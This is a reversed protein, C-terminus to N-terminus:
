WTAVMSRPPPTPASPPAPSSTSTGYRRSSTRFTPPMRRCPSKLGGSVLQWIMAANGALAPAVVSSILTPDNQAATFSSISTGGVLVAYPSTFNYELNTLGNGTENGSGGDGLANFMTLNSLAADVYLQLGAYYFPSDPSM